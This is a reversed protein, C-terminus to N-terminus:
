RCQQWQLESRCVAYIDLDRINGAIGRDVIGQSKAVSVLVSGCDSVPLLASSPCAKAFVKEDM